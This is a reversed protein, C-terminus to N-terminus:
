SWTRGRRIGGFIGLFLVAGVTAVFISALNLGEDYRFGLISSFLFGGIFAGIVGVVLNKLLGHTRGAIWESLWGAVLGVIIWAIFSM